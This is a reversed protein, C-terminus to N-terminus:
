LWIIQFAIKSIRKEAFFNWVAASGLCVMWLIYDDTRSWDVIKMMSSKGMKNKRGLCDLAPSFRLLKINTSVCVHIFIWSLPLYIKNCIYKDYKIKIHMCDHVCQYENDTASTIFSPWPLYTKANCYRLVDDDGKPIYVTSIHWLPFLSALRLVQCDSIMQMM